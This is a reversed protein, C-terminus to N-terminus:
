GKMLHKYDEKQGWNNPHYSISVPLPIGIDDGSQQMLKALKKVYRFNGGERKRFSFILEDHVQLIMKPFVEKRRHWKAIQSDCRVMAKTTCWMATGQVKYNLPTTTLIGGQETRSCMIPYGRDPDVTVDPITEVYGYRRADRVANDNMRAM